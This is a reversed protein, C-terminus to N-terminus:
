EGLLAVIQHIYSESNKGLRTPSNGAAQYDKSLVTLMKGKKRGWLARLEQEATAVPWQEKQAKVIPQHFAAFLPWIYAEPMFGTVTKGNPLVVDRDKRVGDWGKLKPTRVLEEYLFSYWELALDLFPMLKQYKDPTYLRVLVGKGAYCREPSHGSWAHIIAVLFDVLYKAGPNTNPKFEFLDRKKPELNKKLSDWHGLIDKEGRLPPTVKTNLGVSRKAMEEPSLDDMYTVRVKVKSGDVEDEKIADQLALVTHGGDLIYKQNAIVIGTNLELFAEPNNRLQERMDKYAKSSKSPM